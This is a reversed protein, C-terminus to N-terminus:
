IKSSYIFKYKWGGRNNLDPSGVNQPLLLNAEVYLHQRPGWKDITHQMTNTHTWNIQLINKTEILSGKLLLLGGGVVM